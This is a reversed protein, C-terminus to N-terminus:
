NGFKVDGTNVDECAAIGNKVVTIVCDPPLALQESTLTSKQIDKEPKVEPLFIGNQYAVWLGSIVAVLGSGIFALVKRNSEDRLWHWAGSIENSKTM